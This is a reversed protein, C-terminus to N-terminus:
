SLEERGVSFVRYLDNWVQANIRQQYLGGTALLLHNRVDQFPDVDLRRM